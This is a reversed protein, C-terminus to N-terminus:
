SLKDELGRARFFDNERRKMESQADFILTSRTALAFPIRRKWLADGYPDASSIKLLRAGPKLKVRAPIASGEILGTPLLLEEVDLVDAIEFDLCYPALIVRVRKGPAKVLLAEFIVPDMCDEEFARM